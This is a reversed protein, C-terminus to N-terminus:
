SRNSEYPHDELLIIDTDDPADINVPNKADFKFVGRGTSLALWTERLSGQSNVWNPLVFVAECNNLIAKFDRDLAQEITFSNDTMVSKSPWNWHAEKCEMDLRAPNVVDYGWLNLMAEAKYFEEFNQNKLGRMPGAIYVTRRNMSTSEPDPTNSM